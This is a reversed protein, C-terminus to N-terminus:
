EIIDDGSIGEDDDDFGDFDDDDVGEFDDDAGEIPDEDAGEIPDEDAGEIPDEDAGEIPDEGAGEVPDEGGELPPLILEEGAGLGDVGNTATKNFSLMDLVSKGSITEVTTQVASLAAGMGVNKLWTRKGGMSVCVAAITGQALANIYKKLGQPNQENKNVANAVAKGALNGVAYGVLLLGGTKALETLKSVSFTKAISGLGMLGSKKSGKRKKSSKKKTTTKETTAM